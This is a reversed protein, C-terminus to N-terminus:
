KVASQQKGLEELARARLGCVASYLTVDAGVLDRASQQQCLYENHASESEGVYDLTRAWERAEAMCKGAMYRYKLDSTKSSLGHMDLVHAARRYNGSSYLALSLLWVADAPPASLSTTFPQNDSPLAPRFSKLIAGAGCARM